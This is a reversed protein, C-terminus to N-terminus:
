KRAGRFAEIATSVLISGGGIIVIGYAIVEAVLGVVDIWTM